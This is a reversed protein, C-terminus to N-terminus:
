LMTIANFSPQCTFYTHWSVRDDGAFKLLSTAPGEDEVDPVAQLLYHFGKTQWPVKKAMLDLAQQVEVM